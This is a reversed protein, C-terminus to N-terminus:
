GPSTGNGDNVWDNALAYAQLISMNSGAQGTATDATLGFFVPGAAVDANCPNFPAGDWTAGWTIVLNPATPTVSLIAMALRKGQEVSQDAGHWILGRRYTLSGNHFTSVTQGDLCACAQDPL